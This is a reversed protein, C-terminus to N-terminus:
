NNCYLLRNPKIKYALSYSVIVQLITWYVPYNMLGESVESSLQVVVLVSVASLFMDIPASDRWPKKVLNWQTSALKVTLPCDHYFMAHVLFFFANQTKSDALIALNSMQRTVL